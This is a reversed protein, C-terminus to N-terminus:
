VSEAFRSSSRSFVLGGLLLASIAGLVGPLLTDISPWVGLLVAERYADIYSSMPNLALVIGATENTVNIPYVVSTAFMAMVIGVQLLYGVDRFFMNAASLLLALGTTFALQLAFIPVVALLPTRFPIESYLMLGVMLVAAIALDFLAAAVRSIPIVSLPFKSKKIIDASRILSPTAQTLSMAFHSWPVLGCFAFLAYPVGALPDNEPILRGFNLVTFVGMMVLPMCVAWAAGLVARAYRIRVERLTLLWLLERHAFIDSSM